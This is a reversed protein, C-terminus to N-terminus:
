RRRPFVAAHLVHILPAREAKKTEGQCTVLVPGAAACLTHHDIVVLPTCGALVHVARVHRPQPSMFRYLNTRWRGSCSTQTTQPILTTGKTRTRRIGPSGARVMSPVRAVGVAMASM